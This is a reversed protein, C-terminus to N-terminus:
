KATALANKLATLFETEFHKDIVPQAIRGLDLRPKFKAPKDSFIIVPVLKGPAGAAGPIRRWIGMPADEWGKGQPVGYFLQIPAAGKRRSGSVGLRKAIAPSLEGNQASAKLKNILGRPVNGFANLQINGPLRIGAEGPEQTGGEEQLKLYKSQIPKFGVEAVLKAKNAMKLYTGRKTFSTPNDLQEDLGAPVAARIKAATKTLAVATAYTVQKAQAQLTKTIAAINSQVSIKM